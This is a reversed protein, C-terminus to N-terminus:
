RNNGTYDLFTKKDNTQHTIKAGKKILFDVVEIQRYKSAFILANEGKKNAQDIIAQNEILLSVMAMNGQAAAISLANMGTKDQSNVNAGAHILKSAIEFHNHYVAYMLATAEESDISNLDYGLTICHDIAEEDNKVVAATLYNHGLGQQKLLQETLYIEVLPQNNRQAMSLPSIGSLTPITPDAGLALLLKIAEHQHRIVAIMLPTIGLQNFGNVEAGQKVLAEIQTLDGNSAAQFLPDILNQGVLSVSALFLIFLILIWRKM